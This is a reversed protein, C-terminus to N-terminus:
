ALVGEGKPLPNPRPSWSRCSDSFIVGPQKLLFAFDTLQSIPHYEPPKPRYLLRAPVAPTEGTGPDAATRRSM